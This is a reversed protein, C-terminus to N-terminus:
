GSSGRRTTVVIMDGVIVGGNPAFAARGVSSSARELRVERVTSAPIGRLFSLETPPAGDVSVSPTSGRSVLWGPRLRELADMLSGQRAIGELEQATLATSAYVRSTADRSSVAQVACGAVLGVVALVSIRRFAFLM